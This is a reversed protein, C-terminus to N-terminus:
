NSSKLPHYAKYHVAATKDFRNLVDTSIGILVNRSILPTKITKLVKAIITDTIAISDGVPDKRHGLSSYISLLLKEKVFHETKGDIKDILLSSSYDIREITTFINKCNPCKRRRWVQQQKKQLRSNVVQTKGDCFICVM